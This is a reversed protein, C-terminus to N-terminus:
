RTPDICSVTDETLSTVWISNGVAAVSHAAPNVSSPEAVRIPSGVKRGTTADIRTVTGDDQSAVWVSRAAARFSDLRVDAM